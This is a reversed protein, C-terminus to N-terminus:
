CAATAQSAPHGPQAPLRLQKARYDLGVGGLYCGASCCCVQCGSAGLEHTASPLPPRRRRRVEGSCCVSTVAASGLAPDVPAPGLGETGLLEGLRQKSWSVRNREEWHRGLRGSLFTGEALSDASPSPPTGFSDLGQAPPPM